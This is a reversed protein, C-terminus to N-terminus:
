LKPVNRTPPGKPLMRREDDRPVAQGNNGAAAVQNNGPMPTFSDVWRWGMPVSLEKRAIHAWPTGDHEEVVRELYEQAREAERELRSSTSLDSDPVLKWTNNKEAKPKLGRKAQALMENYGRTRVLVALMQGCALDYAAQWRLSEESNRAEEGQRLISHVSNLTPELKAALKQAETLQNAFSAEDRKVFRLQPRGMRRVDAGAARVLAERTPNSSVRRQYEDVSVYEPRYARMTQPDFFRAFYSSFEETERRGIRRGVHRNPHIAFYIGGTQYCLRTLAYPGFGSDLTEQSTSAFPLRLRELQMSEPGQNVRGWKPTQDFKPNPDVWKLMTETEGFAAPVGVVYVPMTRKRCLRVCKELMSQYDDGVEDTVAVLLVNRKRRWGEFEQAAAYIASFVNEVGSEDTEIAAVADQIAQTDATPKRIMWTPKVGFGMIATLLPERGNSRTDPGHILGLEEYIRRLRENIERRQRDLSGSQDFLWVVLTEREELSLLIEHTLRDIAGTAGTVGVGAVGRVLKTSTDLPTTVEDFQEVFEIDGEDLLDQPQSEIEALDALVPASAMATARGDDSLAGIVDSIEDQFQFEQPIEEVELPEPMSITLLERVPLSYSLLSVVVLLIVHLTFSLVWAPVDAISSSFSHQESWERWSATLRGIM